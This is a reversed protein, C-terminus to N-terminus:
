RCIFLCGPTLEAGSGRKGRVVGGRLVGLGQRRYLKGLAGLDEWPCGVSQRQQIDMGRSDVKPWSMYPLPAHFSQNSTEPGAGLLSPPVRGQTFIPPFSFSTCPSHSSPSTQVGWVVQSKGCSMGMIPKMQRPM